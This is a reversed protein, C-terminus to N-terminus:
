LSISAEAFYPSAASSSGKRGSMQCLELRPIEVPGRGNEGSGIAADGFHQLIDTADFTRRGGQRNWKKNMITMHLHSRSREAEKPDHILEAFTDHLVKQIEQVVSLSAADRLGMYVVSAKKPEYRNNAAGSPLVKLGGGIHILPSRSATGQAADGSFMLADQGGGKAVLDDQEKLLKEKVAIWATCFANQLLEAALEVDARRPLRLVLLTVHLRPTSTILEVSRSSASAVSKAAQPPAVLEEAGEEAGDECSLNAKKGADAAVYNQLKMLFADASATVTPLTGIPISVFHTYPGEAKEAPAPKAMSVAAEGMAGKGSVRVEDDSEEGQPDVGHDQQPQEVEEGTCDPEDENVLAEVGDAAWAAPPPRKQREHSEIFRRYTRGTTPIEFVIAGDDNSVGPQRSSPAAAASYGPEAALCFECVHRIDRSRRQCAACRWEDRESRTLAIRRGHPDRSEGYVKVLQQRTAADMKKEAQM